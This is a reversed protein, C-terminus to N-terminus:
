TGGRMLVLGQGRKNNLGIGRTVGLSIGAKEHSHHLRLEESAVGRTDLEPGSQHLVDV